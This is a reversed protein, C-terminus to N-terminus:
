GKAVEAEGPFVAEWFGAAYIAQIGKITRTEGDIEVARIVMMGEQAQGAACLWRRLTKVGSMQVDVYPEKM